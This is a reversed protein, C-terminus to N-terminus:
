HERSILAQLRELDRVAEKFAESQEVDPYSIECDRTEEVAGLTTRTEMQVFLDAATLQVEYAPNSKSEQFAEHFKDMTGQLHQCGLNWHEMDNTEHGKAMIMMSTGTAAGVNWSYSIVDWFLLYDMPMFDKSWDVIGDNLPEPSQEEPAEFFAQITVTLIGGLVMMGLCLLVRMFQSPIRKTQETM